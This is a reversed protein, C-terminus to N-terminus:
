EVLWEIWAGHNECNALLKETRVGNTYSVLELASQDAHGGKGSTSVLFLDRKAGHLAILSSFENRANPSLRTFTRFICLAGDRPVRKLTEPLSEVGEGAILTPPDQKTVEIAHQLLEARKNDGPWVLARLWLTSEPDRVDIPNLDM